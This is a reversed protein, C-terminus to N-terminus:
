LERQIKTHCKLGAPEYNHVIIWKEPHAQTLGVSALQITFKEYLRIYETHRNLGYNLLVTHKTHVILLIKATCVIKGVHAIRAFVALLAVQSFNYHSHKSYLPALQSSM